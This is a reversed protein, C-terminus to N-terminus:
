FKVLVRVRAKISGETASSKSGRAGPLSSRCGRQLLPGQVLSLLVCGQLASSQMCQGEHKCANVANGHWGEHPHLMAGCSGDDSAGGGMYAGPRFPPICAESLQMRGVSAPGAETQSALSASCHRLTVCCPVVSCSSADRLSSAEEQPTVHEM